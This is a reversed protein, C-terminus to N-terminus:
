KGKMICLSKYIKVDKDYVLKFCKESIFNLKEIGYYRKTIDSFIIYKVNYKNLLSVAATEYLTNYIFDIDRLRQDADEILLFNKDAVNKRKAIATILYGEEISGLIVDEKDSNNRLWLLAKIESDPVSKKYIHSHAYSISPFVSTFLILIFLFVGIFPKVKAFKTKNLFIMLSNYTKSFLLVLALGFLMLGVDLELFRLWLFVLVLLAFSVLLYMDKNRKKTSYEYISFVGFLLPVIGIYYLAEFPNFQSFYQALMSKPINKWIVGLGHVLLPKKFALFLSWVVIFVSFLIVELETKTIKMRELKLLLLYVLFTLIILIVLPSLIRLLLLSIIFCSLYKKNKNTKIFSYLVFLMLPIALTYVSINNLTRVFFIPVFGSTFAALLSIGKNKAIEKSFFYVVFVILSAFINPILKGVINLPIFISFFSLIYNFLPLQIIIRGGYSLNDHYIPFLYHKIHEVQRITNYADSEFTKTQFAFFLRLSLVLLFIFVLVTKEKNKFMVFM